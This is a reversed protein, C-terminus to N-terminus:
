SKDVGEFLSQSIFPISGGFGAQNPLEPDGHLVIVRGDVLGGAHRPKTLRLV